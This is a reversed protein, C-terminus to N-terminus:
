EMATSGAAKSPATQPAPFDPALMAGISSFAWSWVAVVDRLHILTELASWEGEGRRSASGPPAAEETRRVVGASSWMRELIARHEPSM